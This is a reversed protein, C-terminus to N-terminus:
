GNHEGAPAKKKEDQAPAAPEHKGAAPKADWKHLYHEPLDASSHRECAGIGLAAVAIAASLALRKMPHFLLRHAPSALRKM